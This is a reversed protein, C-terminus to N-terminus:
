ALEEANRGARTLEVIWRASLGGRIASAHKGDDSEKVQGSRDMFRTLESAHRIANAIDCKPGCFREAVVAGNSKLHRM